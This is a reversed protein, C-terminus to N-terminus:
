YKRVSPVILFYNLINLAIYNIDILTETLIIKSPSIQSIINSGPISNLGRNLIASVKNVVPIIHDNSVQLTYFIIFIFLFLNKCNMSSVKQVM